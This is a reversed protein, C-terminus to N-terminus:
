DNRTIIYPTSTDGNWNTYYGNSDGAGNGKQIGFSGNSTRYNPNISGDPNRFGTSGSTGGEPTSGATVPADGINFYAFLDRYNEPVKGYGGKTNYVAELAKDIAAQAASRRAEPTNGTFQQYWAKLAQTQDATPATSFQNTENWTNPNELWDLYSGFRKVIGLNGPNDTSYTAEDGEGNYDFSARDNFHSTKSSEKKAKEQPAFTFGRATAIADSFHNRRTDFTDDWFKTWGSRKGARKASM